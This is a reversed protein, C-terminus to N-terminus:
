KQCNQRPRFQSYSLIDMYKLSIDMASPSWNLTDMRGLNHCSVCSEHTRQMPLLGLFFRKGRKIEEHSHGDTLVSEEGAALLPNSFNFCSVFVVLIVLIPKKTYHIKRLFVKRM